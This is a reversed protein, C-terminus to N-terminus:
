RSLDVQIMWDGEFDVDRPEKGPLGIKSNEGGTSTDYSVYVGKTQHAKFDLVVWFTTPVSVPKKFRVKVWEQEGREFLSYAATETHLVESEENMIFIYFDEKPPKPYGYRSGHIRLGKLKKMVGPGSPLTFEIMEGNGGLSKKGDAKGDGYKLATPGALASGAVLATLAALLTTHRKM